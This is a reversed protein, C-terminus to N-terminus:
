NKLQTRQSRTGYNKLLNIYDFLVFINNRTCLRKVTGFMKFFSQNVQNRDSIVAVRNGGDCKNADIILNTQKFLFKVDVERVPLMKCLLIPGGFLRVILFSLVTNALLHPKNVAKGFLAGGHYQLTMKVHLEDLLLIRTKQRPDSLNRFISHM